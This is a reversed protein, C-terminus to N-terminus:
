KYLIYNFLLHSKWNIDCTMFYCFYSFLIRMQMRLYQFYSNPGDSNQIQIGNYYFEGNYTIKYIM